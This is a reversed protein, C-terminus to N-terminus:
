GDEDPDAAAEEPAKEAAEKEYTELVGRIAVGMADERARGAAKRQWDIAKELDGQDHHVRALTDLIAPDESETLENARRASKMAFDLDRRVVAEDDVVTWAVQNLMPADDWSAKLLEEGVAYGGDPDDAKTILARFKTWLLSTDGPKKELLEDLIAVYADWDGEREAARMRGRVERMMEEYAQRELFEEKFAARDWTGEVVAELVEDMRMPHGIWEVLGERGIVFACPIGRQRAALFYDKKVSGDPDTTLIYRTRDHHLKGDHRDTQFLFSAVRPLSEDSVSIITVDRDAYKEQLESLHPMGGVCPGCWTAWFELVYVKGDGFSTIPTFDGRRDMEVGKIWHTIDIDPAEDGITLSKSVDEEDGRAPGALCLAVLLVMVSSRRM